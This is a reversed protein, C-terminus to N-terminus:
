YGGGQGPRSGMGQSSGGFPSMPNMAADMREDGANMQMQQQEAAAQINPDDEGGKRHEVIQGTKQAWDMADQNGEATYPFFKDGVYPM